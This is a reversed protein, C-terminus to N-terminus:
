KSVKRTFPLLILTSLLIMLFAGISLYRIPVVQALHFGVQPAIFGRFGTLFTHVAMYGATKEHPVFLTIWLGWLIDGGATALGYLISGITFGLLSSSNFFIILAIGFLCNLLARMIFFNIKDFLAGWLPATLLRIVNPLVAVIMAVKRTTLNIGHSPNALFEVFLPQMMLNAFGMLMWASLTSFLISSSVISKLTEKLTFVSKQKLITCPIKKIAFCIWGFAAAWIILLIRFNDIDQNLLKGAFYAFIAYSAIRTSITLAYLRGRLRAPYNAHYIQTMLPTPLAIAANGIIGTLVLISLTPKLFCVLYAIMGIFSLFAIISTSKLRFKHIISVLVPALLQGGNTGSALLAKALASANFKRISILVLFTNSAADLIGLGLSRVLDYIFTIRAKCDLVVM